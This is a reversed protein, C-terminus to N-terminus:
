HSLPLSPPLSQVTLFYMLLSSLPVPLLLYPSAFLFWPPFLGNERNHCWLQICHSLPPVECGHAYECKREGNQAIFQTSLQNKCRFSKIKKLAECYIPKRECGANHQCTEEVDRQIPLPTWLCLEMCHMFSLSSVNLHKAFVGKPLVCIKRSM